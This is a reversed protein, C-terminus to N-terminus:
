DFKTAQISVFNINQGQFRRRISASQIISQLMLSPLKEPFQWLLAYEPQQSICLSKSHNKEQREKHDSPGSTSNIKKQFPVPLLASRCYIGLPDSISKENFFLIKCNKELDGFRKLGNERKNRMKRGFYKFHNKLLFFFSYKIRTNVFAPANNLYLPEGATDIRWPSGTAHPEARTRSASTISGNSAAEAPFRFAMRM